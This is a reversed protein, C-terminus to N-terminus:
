FSITSKFSIQSSMNFNKLMKMFFENESKKEPKQHLKKYFYNSVHFKVFIHMQGWFHLFRSKASIEAM